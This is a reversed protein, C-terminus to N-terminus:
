KPITKIPKNEPTNSSIHFSKFYMSTRLLFHKCIEWWNTGLAEQLSPFKCAQEMNGAKSGQHERPRSVGAIKAATKPAIEEKQFIRLLQYIIFTGPWSNEYCSQYTIQEKADNLLLFSCCFEGAYVKIHTLFPESIVSFNSSGLGETQQGTRQYSLESRKAAHSLSNYNM